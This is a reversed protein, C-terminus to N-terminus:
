IIEQNNIIRTIFNNKDSNDLKLSNSKLFNRYDNYFNELVIKHQDKLFQELDEKKEFSRTELITYWEFWKNSSDISKDKNIKFLIEVIISEKKNSM